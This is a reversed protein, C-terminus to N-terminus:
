VRERKIIIEVEEGNNLVELIKSNEDVDDLSYKLWNFGGREKIVKAKCYVLGNIKKPNEIDKRVRRMVMVMYVLYCLNAICLGILIWKEM